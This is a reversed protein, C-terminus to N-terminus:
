KKVNISHTVIHVVSKYPKDHHTGASKETYSAELLYQGAQLPTFGAVGNTGSKLEKVWGDASIVEVKADALPAKNKYVTVPVSGFGKPEEAAPVISLLTGGALQSASEKGVVVTATAYYEIKTEGYITEVTHSITLTYTGEAAPTFQGNLSRGDAKLNIEERAGAPTIVFLKVDKMNSFWNSVSDRENAAYEGLFVRVEQPKNKTGKLATEIWVAHASALFACLLLAISLTIKKM